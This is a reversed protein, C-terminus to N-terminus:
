GKVMDLLGDRLTSSLVIVVIALAFFIAILPVIARTGSESIYELPEAVATVRWNVSQFDTADVVLRATLAGNYVVNDTITYNGSSIAAGDTENTIVVDTLVKYSTFYYAGGNAPAAISVNDLAGITTTKGAEQAVVQFLVVGVLAVVFIMIIVGMEKNIDM